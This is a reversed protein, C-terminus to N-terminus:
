RLPFWRLARPLIEEPIRISLQTWRLDQFLAQCGSILFYFKRNSKNLNIKHLFEDLIARSIFLPHHLSINKYIIIKCSVRTQLLGQLSWILEHLACDNKWVLPLCDTLSGLKLFWLYFCVCLKNIMENKAVVFIVSSSIFM